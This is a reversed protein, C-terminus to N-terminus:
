VGEGGVQEDAAQLGKLQADRAVVLVGHLDRAEQFPVRHYFSDEVWAKLRVRLVFEGLPLHLTEAPHKAEREYAPVLSDLREQRAQLECVPRRVEPGDLGSNPRGGGRAVDLGAGLLARRHADGLREHPVRSAYLVGVIQDRVQAACQGGDARPCRVGGPLPRPMGGRSLGGAKPADVDSQSFTCWDVTPSSAHRVAGLCFSDNVATCRLNAPLKSVVRVGGPVCYPAVCLLGSLVFGKLFARNALKHLGRCRM